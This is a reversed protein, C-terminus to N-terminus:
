RAIAECSDNPRGVYLISPSAISIQAKTVPPLIAALVAPSLAVLGAVVEWFFCHCVRHVLPCFTLDHRELILFLMFASSGYILSM